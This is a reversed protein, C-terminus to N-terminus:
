SCTPLHSERWADIGGDLNMLGTHGARDLISVASAAREGHGCYVVAPRDGPIEDVRRALEGLPVHLAGPIHGTGYEDRERVDLALAGERLADRARAADILASSEVALGAREWAPMGGDLFGAFREYGVLLAQDVADSVETEDGVFLLPAGEQVLWGLWVAFVDRMAISLAGPVHSRAYADMPRLDVVVAERRAADFDPATLRWPAPIERVLRPGAANFARMRFYYAPAAPFTTPFWRAFAEEDDIELMPNSAREAGLTSTRASGAGASCFSGGGHTPYLLTEDSLANFAARLSRFQARTLPETMEPSVLDTRAAGGVLLSGGSFLAPPGGSSRLAYSLHEPTHGPSGFAEIEIGGFTVRGGADVPEHRLRVDADRPLFLTAGTAAAIEHAGSVFDAHLHTEFVADIHWGNAGAADLYRQVNRDPDVLLARGGALGVLYSSNGLGEHVFPIVKM